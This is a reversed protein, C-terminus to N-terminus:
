CEGTRSGHIATTKYSSESNRKGLYRQSVRSPRANNTGYVEADKLIPYSTTSQESTNANSQPMFQELIEYLKIYMEKHPCNEHFYNLYVEIGLLIKHLSKTKELFM